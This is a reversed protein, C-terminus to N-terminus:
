EKIGNSEPAPDAATARRQSGGSSYCAVSNRGQNKADYLAQDARSLYDNNEEIAQPIGAFLGLSVTVRAAEGDVRFPLTAIAHRISEAMAKAGAFPTGPLVVCFEEGGFRAVFDAPRKLCEEIRRAVAILCQDGVQHGFRDNFQKFHDIDLLIVALPRQCRSGRRYEAKLSDNLARRNKLGTLSDTNSLLALKRNAKELARTRDRVRRELKENSDLQIKLAERQAHFRMHREHNLRVALALSLLIVEAVAGFQIAYETFLNHPIWDMKSCGMVFGGFFYFSWAGMYYKAVTYGEWWRYLGVGFGLLCCLVTATILPKIIDGYDAFLSVGILGLGLLCCAQVVRGLAPHTLPNIRLFDRLFITSFFIALSIGLAVVRDNLGPWAGWLFQYGFGNIAVMFLLLSFVCGVYYLYTVERTTWYVFMNYIAMILLIGYCLGFLLIIGQDHELFEAAPWLNADFQVASSTKVRVYVSDIGARTDFPMLFGRHRIPRVTFALQDGLSHQRVLEGDRIFYVDIFDLLPYDIHFWYDGEFTRTDPLRYIFWSTQDSFGQSVGSGNIRCDRWASEGLARVEALSTKGQSEYCHAPTLSNRGDSAEAPGAIMSCVLICLATLRRWLVQTITTAM